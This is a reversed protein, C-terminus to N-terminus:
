HKDPHRWVQIVGYHLNRIAMVNCPEAERTLSCMVQLGHIFGDFSYILM